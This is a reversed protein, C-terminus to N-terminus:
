FGDYLTQYRKTIDIMSQFDKSTLGSYVTHFNFFTMVNEEKEFYSSTNWKNFSTLFSEMAMDSPAFLTLNENADDLINNNLNIRKLLSSLKTLNSH